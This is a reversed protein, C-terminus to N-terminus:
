RLTVIRTRFDTYAPYRGTMWIASFSGTGTLGRPTVPRLNPETSHWTLQDRHWTQGLDATRWREIEHVGDIRRSLLLTDPDASSITIGGSYHPETPDESIAGGAPTLERDFWGDGTWRAYRYRHDCETPFTAYGLVPHGDRGVALDHIWARGSAAAGAADYVLSAQAPVVPAGIPGIVAGDARHLHGDRYYMYYISTNVNRPHGDTFAFHLTDRHNSAVKLYPRQGPVSVLTRAPSWGDGTHVAFTPNFNGGRWFLYLADAEAPLAVPNPYTYGHDGPTNVPVTRLPGWASVDAPAVSRRYYMAPGNHGSWFVVIRHDPQVLISPNSHDDVPLGRAVTAAALRDTRHDYQVVKVQGYRDIFGVYTRRHEGAVHVARPDGFWCWAGSAGVPRTAAPPIKRPASSM